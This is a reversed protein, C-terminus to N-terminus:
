VMLSPLFLAEAVTLTLRDPLLVVMLPPLPFPLRQDPRVPIDSAGTSAFSNARSLQQPNSHLERVVVKRKYTAFGEGGVGRGYVPSPLNTGSPATFHDQPKRM